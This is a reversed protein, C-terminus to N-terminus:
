QEYCELDRLRVNHTRANGPTKIAKLDISNLEDYEEDLFDDSSGQDSRLLHQIKEDSKEQYRTHQSKEERIKEEEVDLAHKYQRHHKKYVKYERKSMHHRKKAM